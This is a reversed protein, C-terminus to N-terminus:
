CLGCGIYSIYTYLFYCRSKPAGTINITVRLEGGAHPLVDVVMVGGVSVAGFVVM